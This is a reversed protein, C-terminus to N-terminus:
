NQKIKKFNFSSFLFLYKRKFDHMTNENVFNLLYFNTCADSVFFFILLRFDKIWKSFYSIIRQLLDEQVKPGVSNIKM